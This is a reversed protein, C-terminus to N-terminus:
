GSGVHEWLGDELPVFISKPASSMTYNPNLFSVRRNLGNTPERPLLLQSKGYGKAALRRPAIGHQTILHRLMATRKAGILLGWCPPNLAVSQAMRTMKCQLSWRHRKALGGGSVEGEDGVAPQSAPAPLPPPRWETSVIRVDGAKVDLGSGDFSAPKMLMRRVCLAVDSDPVVRLAEAAYEPVSMGLDKAMGFISGYREEPVEELDIELIVRLTRQRISESNSM